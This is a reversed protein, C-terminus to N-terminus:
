DDKTSKGPKLQLQNYDGNMSDERTIKEFFHLLLMTQPQYGGYVETDLWMFRSGNVVYYGGLTFGVM